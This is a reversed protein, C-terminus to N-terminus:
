DESRGDIATAVAIGMTQGVAVVILTAVVEMPTIALTVGVAGTLSCVGATDYALSTEDVRRATYFFGAAPLVMWAYLSVALLTEGPLAATGDLTLFGVIGALTAPTGAIIVLKWARLVGSSMDNWSAVVFAVLLTGMVVHAVFLAHESIIGAVAAAVVVWAAPVLLAPGNERIRRFM